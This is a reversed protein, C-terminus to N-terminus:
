LEVARRGGQRPRPRAPDYQVPWPVDYNQYAAAAGLVIYPNVLHPRALACLDARGAALVTNVQDHSQIAGVAMVPVGADYRIAAHKRSIEADLLQIDATDERGVITLVRDNGLPHIRGTDNGSMVILLTSAATQSDPQGISTLTERDTSLDPVTTQDSSPASSM